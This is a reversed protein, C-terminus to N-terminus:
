DRNYLDVRGQTSKYIADALVNWGGVPPITLAGGTYGYRNGAVYAPTRVLGLKRGTGASVGQSLNEGKTVFMEEHLFGVFDAWQTIIERKGYNKQNKPSHLLLDWTDFEGFQPDIARAAFVHATFLINIHFYGALKDCLGLLELFKENAFQYAKGYGGLAAEMTMGKGNNKAFAPDHQLTFYHVYEEAKTASDFVITRYPFQGAACASGIENVVGIIDGWAHLQPTKAVQIGAYGMELPVLLTRPANCALTTKGIKEVGAIVGRCGVQMPKNNVQALISM